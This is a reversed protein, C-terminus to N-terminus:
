FWNISTCPVERYAFTVLLLLKDWSRETLLVKHLMAKLTQNYREKLEDTQPYYPSTRIPKVRVAVYVEEYRGVM